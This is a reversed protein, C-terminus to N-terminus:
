RRRPPRAGQPRTVNVTRSVQGGSRTASVDRAFVTQGTSNRTVSQNASFSGQGRARNGSLTYTEGGRGTYTGSTTSGNETRTRTTEFSRTRGAFGTASGSATFGTDTRVRDYSRSATAGDSKRTAEADRSVTGAARDIVTTRSGEARPTDFTATRTRPEATAPGAVVLVLAPITLIIRMHVETSVSQVPMTM